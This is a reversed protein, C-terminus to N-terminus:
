PEEFEVKWVQEGDSTAKCTFNTLIMGLIPRYTTINDETEISDEVCQELTPIYNTCFQVMSYIKCLEKMEMSKKLADVNIDDKTEIISRLKISTINKILKSNIDRKVLEKSIPFIEQKANRSNLLIESGATIKLVPVKFVNAM